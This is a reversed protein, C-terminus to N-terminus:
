LVQKVSSFPPCVYSVTPQCEFGAVSFTGIIVELQLQQVEVM